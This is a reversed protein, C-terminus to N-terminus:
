ILTLEQGRAVAQTRNHVDLKSYINKLHQKVTSPAVVLRSAIEKNSLGEALLRLVELERETLPDLTAEAPSPPLFVPGAVRGRQTEGEQEFAGLLDHAYDAEIRAMAPHETGAATGRAASRELLKRLPEGMELFLRVYGEPRALSLAQSLAGDAEDSRGQAELALAQLALIEILRGTRGGAEALARQRDLLRQADTAGGQALRLRALTLQELESGGNCAEAWHSATELDGVALWQVVRSTKLEIRTALRVHHTQGAQEADGLAELAGEVNGQAQLIRMLAVRGSVLLSNVGFRRGYEVGTVAHEHATELQNWERKLDALGVEYPCRVRSDLGNREVMWLRARNYLADAQRLQGQVKYAAALDCLAPVAMLLRGAREGVALMDMSARSAGDMDDAAFYTDALAYAVMGRANPNEEPLHKETLAAMEIVREADGRLNATFARIAAIHGLLESARPTSSKIRKEVDELLAEAEELRGSLALTSARYVDIWPRGRVVQQPLKQIWGLLVPAESRSLMRAINEEIMSAAREYDQAAMAHIMAEELSGEGQHWRSARRHLERIEDALQRQRLTSKLLDTFLHHYRYWRRKEDLPVVFLNSRELYELIEQGSASPTPPLLDSAAPDGKGLVADCLPGTLRNLISTQLLFTQIPEPQRNLVEEALYDLVYRHSGTFAGIFSTTREADRGQLSLAAMQLGAIWGETRAELAATNDPSLNLGACTNLFAAAEDTTFRLDSQRLETLQGQGRLRAIPLPPDTRTAIVLHLNPPLHNLLFALGDHIPQATVLHYDDLVLVFPGLAAAIENCLGTLITERPPPQPAQLVTLTDQGITAEITQLAAVLYTWFRAPDNDGEDLSLWAVPRGCGATWESLLTTKGYGAPASILTLKRVLGRYKAGRTKQCQVTRDLVTGLSLLDQVLAANLREILRPRAVLEPRVPPIYLKTRLLPSSM